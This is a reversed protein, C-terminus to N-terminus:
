RLIVEQEHINSYIESKNPTAIYLHAIGQMFEILQLTQREQLYPIVKNKLLAEITWTQYFSNSQTVEFLFPGIIVSSNYGCLVTVKVDYLTKEDIKHPNTRAWIHTNHTNANGSVSFYVEDTCLFKFALQLM